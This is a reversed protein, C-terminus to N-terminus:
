RKEEQDRRARALGRRRRARRRRHLMDDEDRDICKAGIVDTSVARSRRRGCQIRERIRTDAVIARERGCRHRQCGVGAEHGSAIRGSVARPVVAHSQIELRRGQGLRERPRSEDGASEDGREREVAPEPQDLAKLGVAVRHRAVRASPLGVLAGAARDNILCQRPCRLMAALPEEEPDVQELRM